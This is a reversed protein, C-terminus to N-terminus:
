GHSVRGGWHLKSRLLRFFSQGPLRVLLVAGEARTVRVVDGIELEAVPRGDAALSAREQQEVVTVRIESSAPLVVPRIALTHPCIPTAVIADMTPVVLPGQASLTYGTSGAPTALILGDAVYTGVEEGGVELQLTLVRSTLAGKHLVVDNLAVPAEGPSDHPGEDATRVAARLSMHSEATGRGEFLLEFSTLMSARSSSTLFGLHGTNVGFIPVPQGALHRAAHLITGDGGFTLLLDVRAPLGEWAFSPLDLELPEALGPAGLAELGRERLWRLATRVTDPVESRQPNAVIGVSRYAAM